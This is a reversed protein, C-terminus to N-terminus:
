SPLWAHINNLTVVTSGEPLGDPKELVLFTAPEHQVDEEETLFVVDNYPRMLDVLYGLTLYQRNIISGTLAAISLRHEEVRNFRPTGKLYLHMWKASWQGSKDKIFVLPLAVRGAGRLDSKMRVTAAEFPKGSQEAERTMFGFFCTEIETFDEGAFIHVQPILYTGRVKRLDIDIFETAGDPATVLDGSHVAGAEKLNTWSIQMEMHLNEDLILASLDYDTRQEKQKWYVFFRLVGAEVPMVSGRPLISFGQAKNKDSHPIAVSLFVPDVVLREGGPMRAAIEQDLLNILPAIVSDSLPVLTESTVWARGRSNTFLRTPTTALRNVLHERLSLLVRGSVKGIVGTLAERLVEREQESALRLLRDLNRVLVGPKGALLAIATAVEGDRLAIEVQAELSFVKQEGYAVAFVNAAHKLRPFEHVHMREGLRKWQERYPYVDALQAPKGSVVEDLAVLLSRRVSRSLSRFTTPERLTVDGDALACALRLVDTITDVLMSQGHLIRVGNVIARTERIPIKTPQVDFLCVTALTKVLMRDAENLPIVSEALTQYLALAEEPLSRGLHLLTVRDKVSALFEKHHALMETYSHQYRGYLTEGTLLLRFIERLWFAQTDPVGRPFDIFYINHQVHDGVLERAAAIVEEGVRLVVAPERGALHAFLEASLKWGIGMLATDLQRTTAAGEGKQEDVIPVCFTRKLIAQGIEKEQERNMQVNM